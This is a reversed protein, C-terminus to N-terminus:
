PACRRPGDPRNGRSSKVRIQPIIDCLRMAYEWRRPNESCRKMPRRKTKTHATHPALCPRAGGLRMRWGWSCVRRSTSREHTETTQAQLHQRIQWGKGNHNDSGPSAAPDALGEVAVGPAIKSIRKFEDPNILLELFMQGGELVGWFVDQIKTCPHRGAERGSRVM